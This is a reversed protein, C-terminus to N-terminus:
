GPPGALSAQDQAWGDKPRGLEWRRGLCPLNWGLAALRRPHLLGTSIRPPTAAAPPPPSRAAPLSPLNAGKRWACSPKQTGLVSDGLGVGVRGGATCLVEWREMRELPPPLLPPLLPPCVSEGGGVRM